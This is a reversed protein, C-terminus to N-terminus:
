PELNLTQKQPKQAEERSFFKRGSRPSNKLILNM